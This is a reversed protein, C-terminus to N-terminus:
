TIMINVILHQQLAADVLRQQVVGGTLYLASTAINHTCVKKPQSVSQMGERQVLLWCAKWAAVTEHGYM